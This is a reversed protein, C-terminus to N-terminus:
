LSVRKKIAKLIMIDKKDLGKFLVLILVYSLFFFIGQIILTFINIKIFQKLYFLLLTPIVISLLAILMKRRVPIISVYYNAQLLSIIAWIFYTIMTAFAAGTIGYKPVLM